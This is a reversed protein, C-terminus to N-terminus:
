RLPPFLTNVDPNEPLYLIYTPADLQIHAPLRRELSRMEGDYVQNDVAFEYAIVWPHRGNVSRSEDRYIDVIEGEATLGDQLVQVTRQAKGYGSLLLGLGIVTFVGGIISFPIGVPTFVFLLVCGVVAFIIGLPAFIAGVIPTVEGKMVKGMYGKPVERPAPPPAPVEIEAGSKMVRREPVPLIGGCNSCNSQFELYNTGCWPCTIEMIVEKENIQLHHSLDKQNYCECLRM